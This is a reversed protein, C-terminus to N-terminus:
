ATLQLRGLLEHLIQATAGWVIEAGARYSHTYYTAGGGSRPLQRYRYSHALQRLPLEFIQAVEQPSPRWPSLPQVLAVFPYILYHTTLTPYPTLAGLVTAREPPLGIEEETERLAAAVLQEDPQVRGGPFVIEGPHTVLDAQRQTLVVGLEGRQMFLCVLM